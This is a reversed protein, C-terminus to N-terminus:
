KLTPQVEVFPLIEAGVVVKRGNIRGTGMIDNSPLIAVLRDGDFTPIGTIAGTEHFSGVDLLKEIRERCNLKGAARHKALNEPGGMQTALKERLRLEEIEALWGEHSQDKFKDM